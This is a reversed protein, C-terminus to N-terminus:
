IGKAFTQYSVLEDTVKQEERKEEILYQQFQKEKLKELKKKEKTADILEQRCEDVIKECKKVAILQDEIKKDLLKIYKNYRDSKRSDIRNKVAEHFEQIMREREKILANLKEKQRDLEAIARGFENKKQEELNERLRLVTDMKFQFKAM